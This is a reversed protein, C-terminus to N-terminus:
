VKHAACLYFHVCFVKVFSSGFYFCHHFPPIPIHTGMKGMEKKQHNKLATVRLHNPDSHYEHTARPLELAIQKGQTLRRQVLVLVLGSFGVQDGGV